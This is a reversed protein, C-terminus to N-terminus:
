KVAKVSFVNPTFTGEPDAIARQKGINEYKNKDEYYFQWTNDLNWDGYSGWLVRKDQKSYCGNPGNMTKDNGAQWQGAIKKGEDSAIHFCDLVQCVTSDRWSYSTGNDRHLYYRSQNGGYAQIQVAVWCNNWLPTFWPKFIPDIRDACKEVWKDNVLSRSNTMYTRKDYPLDFERYREFLWRGTMISMPEEFSDGQIFWNKWRNDYRKFNDFWAQAQATFKDDKSLPVWQAYLIITPPWKRDKLDTELMKEMDEFYKEENDKVEPVLDPVSFSSSLVSVCLDFNPPFDPDDAIKAVEKLLTILMDKRYLWIGRYGHPRLGIDPFDHDEDRHVEITYHTIVGFNGPSGGLIANFLAEDSDKTMEKIEGEYNIYRISRIHDGILGFSRALQGYGGTQCHGGVHVDRCQGHPVFLKNEKLFDNLAGLSQSASAYVLRRNSDPGPMPPYLLLDNPGHYTNRLNLQIGGAHTSCAGSYQHGGSMVAVKYSNKVAYKVAKQIDADGRPFVIMGPFMDHDKQHSSTAYERNVKDYNKRQVPDNNLPYQAGEFDQITEM